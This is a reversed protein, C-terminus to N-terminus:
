EYEAIGHEEGGWPVYCVGHSPVVKGPILAGSEHKGRGVYLQEGGTDLGAPIASPPVPEGAAVPVWTAAGGVPAAGEAAPDVAWGP